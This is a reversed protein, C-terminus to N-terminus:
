TPKVQDEEEECIGGVDLRFNKEAESFLDMFDEKTLKNVTVFEDEKANLQVYFDKDEDKLQMHTEKMKMIDEKTSVMKAQQFFM